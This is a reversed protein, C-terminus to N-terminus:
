LSLCGHRSGLVGPLDGSRQFFPGELGAPDGHPIELLDAQGKVAQFREPQGVQLTQVLFLRGLAHVHRAGSEGPNEGRRSRDHRVRQDV